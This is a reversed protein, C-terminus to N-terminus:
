GHQVEEPVYFDIMEIADVYPTREEQWLSDRYSEWAEIAPLRMKAGSAALRRYQAMFQEQEHRGAALVARLEKIKNMPMRGEGQVLQRVAEALNGIHAPESADGDVRYPGFHMAGCKGSYQQARIQELTPPQEGHLIAFDLWCSSGDQRMARMKSKAAGCLQEAIEYGRFFPYATPLISIGGCSDIGLRNMEGMIKRTFSLAYKATCVFTMDDGGLVIPRIPLLQKGDDAEELSLHAQLAPYDDIIDDLLLSFALITKRYVALSMNKRKTLTDCNRFKEGMNNGDIHVIAMYDETERQGLKEFEAPFAYKQLKGALEGLRVAAADSPPLGERELSKPMLVGRLKNLLEEEAPAIIGEKKRAALLKCKVEWSLFRSEKRVDDVDYANATEASAECLLTLGTYPLSVNPFFLNQQAKLKRVLHTLDDIEEERGDALKVRTVRYSGDAELVLEGRAVREVAGLFADIDGVRDKLLYGLAGGGDALLEPLYGAVVYQSLLLIPAGPWQARIRTTARLGEDTHSPPMRIDAVVVDPRLRLAESVLAEGDGVGGVVEHGGDALILALGERLLAADDALLIRM